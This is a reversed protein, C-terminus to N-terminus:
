YYISAALILSSILSIRSSFIAVPVNGKPIEKIVSFPTILHFLYFVLVQFVVGIVGWIIFDVLNQSSLIASALVITLGLIKGSLDYAAAKGAAVKSADDMQSAEKLLQFEPYPTTVAFVVVGLILIPISVGLYTLFNIFAEWQTM